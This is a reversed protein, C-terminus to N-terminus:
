LKVLGKGVKITVVRFIGKVKRQDRNVGACTVLIQMLNDSTM